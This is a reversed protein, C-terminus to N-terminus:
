SGYRSQQYRSLGYGLSQNECKQVVEQELYKGAGDAAQEIMGFSADMM